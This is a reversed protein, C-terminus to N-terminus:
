SDLGLAYSIRKLLMARDKEDDLSLSTSQDIVESVALRPRGGLVAVIRGSRVRQTVTVGGIVREPETRSSARRARGSM